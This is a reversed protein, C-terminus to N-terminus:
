RPLGEVFARIRDVVVDPRDLQIYHGAQPVVVHQSRKSLRTLEEQMQQSVREAEAQLEAPMDPDRRNPDHSLVLVPIPDFPGTKAAQQRDLDLARYESGITSMRGARCAQIRVYPAVSEAGPPIQDCVGMLRAIGTAMLIRTVGILKIESEMQQKLEVPLKDFEDPHTADVFVLGAVKQPHDAAYVRIHLGGLSHGVLVHPPMVGATSLLTDLETAIQSSSRPEQGADSWGMGARDYSCVRAVKSLDPQVLAWDLWSGGLGSELVITPAGTGSCNIHMKRGRVEVIQGPPPHTSTLRWVVARDYCAIAAAVALTLIALTAVIRKIWRWVKFPRRVPLNM